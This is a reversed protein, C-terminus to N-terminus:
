HYNVQEFRQNWPLLAIGEKLYCNDTLASFLLGSCVVVPLVLFATLDLAYGLLFAGLLLALVLRFQRDVSWGNVPAYNTRLQEMNKEMVSVQQFNTDKLKKMVSTARKGTECVLCIHHDRYPLFTAVEFSSSPINIAGSLAGESFEKKTRVDIIIAQM